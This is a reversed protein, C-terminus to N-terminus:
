AGSTDLELPGRVNVVGQSIRWLLSFHRNDENRSALTQFKAMMAAREDVSQYLGFVWDAAREVESSEALQWMSLYGDKDAAKAGERNIQHAMLLPLRHRGTSIMVRLSRLIDRVVEHRAMRGPDPHEVWSLQDILLDDTGRLMAGQVLAEPTRKGEEPQLVWLPTDSKALEDM